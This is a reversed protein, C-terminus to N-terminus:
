NLIKRKRVEDTLLPVIEFLDGVIGFDAIDFIPAEPDKNIAVVFDSSSMGATHQIAGAIGCAIYLKPGVTKGTQGVQQLPSIWGQDVAARSAGVAGGLASALEQLISFNEAKGIGGGGSVIVDAEEIKVGAIGAVRIFDRLKTRIESEPTSIEERIIEVIRDEEPTGKKFVGPRVTGMQPRTNPCIINAMLNGGMAPRTWTVEGETSIELGTCDATLGTEMRCAIRPALDRGNITAGVLITSPQFKKILKAFAYTYAETNYDQYEPGDVLIVQDAGYRIVTQVVDKMEYGVVVAILEEGVTQALKKGENILELVVNKPQGHETEVFVWINKCNNSNM